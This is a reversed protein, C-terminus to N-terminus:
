WGGNNKQTEHVNRHERLFTQMNDAFIKRVDKDVPVEWKIRFFM